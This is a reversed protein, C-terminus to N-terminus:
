ATDNVKFPIIETNQRIINMELTSVSIYWRTVLSLRFALMGLFNSHPHMGFDLLMLLMLMYMFCVCILKLLQLDKADKVDGHLLVQRRHGHHIPFEWPTSWRCRPGGSVRRPLGARFGLWPPKTALPRYLVPVSFRSPPSPPASRPPRPPTSRPTPARRFGAARTTNAALLEHALPLSPSSNTNQKQGHKKVSMEGMQYLVQCPKREPDSSEVM